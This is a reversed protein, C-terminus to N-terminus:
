SLFALVASQPLDCSVFAVERQNFVNSGDHYDDARTDWVYIM